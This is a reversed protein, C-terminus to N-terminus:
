NRWAPYFKFNHPFHDHIGENMWGDLLDKNFM